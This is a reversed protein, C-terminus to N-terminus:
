VALADELRNVRTELSELKWKQEELLLTEIRDLRTTLMDELAELAEKSATSNFGGSLM